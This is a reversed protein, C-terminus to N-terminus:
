SLKLRGTWVCNSNSEIPNADIGAMFLENKIHEQSPYHHFYLLKDTDNFVGFYSMVTDGPEWCGKRFWRLRLAVAGWFLRNKWHLKEIKPILFILADPHCIQTIKNFFEVRKLRSPIHSEITGSVWILNFKENLIDDLEGTIFKANSKRIKAQRNASEIMAPQFDLGVVTSINKEKELAFVERGVGCGIVLARSSPPLQHSSLDLGKKEHKVLGIESSLKYHKLERPTGYRTRAAEIMSEVSAFRRSFLVQSFQRTRRLFSFIGKEQPPVEVTLGPLIEVRNRNKKRM